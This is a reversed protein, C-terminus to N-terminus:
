RLGGAAGRATGGPPGLAARVAAVVDEKRSGSKALWAVGMSRAFAEDVSDSYLVLRGGAALRRLAVCFADAEGQARTDALVLSPVESRAREEAQALSAVAEVRAYPELWAAM